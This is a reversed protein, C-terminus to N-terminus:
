EKHEKGKAAPAGAAPSAAVAEKAPLIVQGGAEEVKEVASPSASAATIVLKHQLIGTGVIKRYGLQALDIHIAGQKAQALQRGVLGECKQDLWALTVAPTLTVNKKIFGHKGFYDLGTVSPWNTGARKGTGAHGRGGRHGAGRRKKKHGGGNSNSGRYKVKKKRKHTTM